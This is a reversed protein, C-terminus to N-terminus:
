GRLFALCGVVESKQNHEYPWVHCLANAAKINKQHYSKIENESIEEKETETDQTM